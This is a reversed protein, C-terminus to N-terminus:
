NEDLVESIECRGLGRSRNLGIQKIMAMAKKLDTKDQCEIHGHLTLPIVVEIERLTKDEAIGEANIKTSTVKDFLKERIDQNNSLYLSSAEDLSANSIYEVSDELNCAMLEFMEKLLGKVTKAPVYPLAFENKVVLADLSAGASLGSGLHWFDFFQIKYKM